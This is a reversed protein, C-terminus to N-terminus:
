DWMLAAAEPLARIVTARSSGLNVRRDSLWLLNRSGLGNNLRCLRRAQIGVSPDTGVSNM